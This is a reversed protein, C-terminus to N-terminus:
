MATAIISYEEYVRNMDFVFVDISSHIFSFIPIIRIIIKIRESELLIEYLFVIKKEIKESRM